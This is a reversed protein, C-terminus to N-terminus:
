DRIKSSHASVPVVEFSLQEIDVSNSCRRSRPVAVVSTVVLERAAWSQRELPRGVRIDRLHDSEMTGMSDPDIVESRTAM